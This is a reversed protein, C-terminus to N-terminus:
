EEGERMAKEVDFSMAWEVIERRAHSSTKGTAVGVAYATAGERMAEQIKHALRVQHLKETRDKAARFQSELNQIATKHDFIESQIDKVLQNDLVSKRGM